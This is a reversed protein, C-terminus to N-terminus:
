PIDFDIRQSTRAVEKVDHPITIIRRNYISQPYNYVQVFFLSLDKIPNITWTWTYRTDMSM